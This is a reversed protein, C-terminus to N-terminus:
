PHHTAQQIRDCWMKSSQVSLVIRKYYNDQSLELALVKTQDLPGDQRTVYWFERGWKTYYTGARILGPVFTGPARIGEWLGDPVGTAVRTIHTLPVDITQGVHASWLREHGELTIALRTDSLTLEM